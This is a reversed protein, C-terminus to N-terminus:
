GLSPSTDSVSIDCPSVQYDVAAAEPNILFQRGQVPIKTFEPEDCINLLPVDFNPNSPPLGAEVALVQDTVETTPVVTVTYLLVRSNTGTQCTAFALNARWAGASMRFPDGLTIGVDPNPTLTYFWAAPLGVVRFEAGVMGAATQGDLTAIIFLTTPVSLTFDAHNQTASSDAYIGISGDQAMAVMPLTALPLVTLGVLSVLWFSVIKLPSVTTRPFGNPRKSTTCYVASRKFM